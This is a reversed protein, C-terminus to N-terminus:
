FYAAAATGTRSIRKLAKKLKAALSQTGSLKTYFGPVAM